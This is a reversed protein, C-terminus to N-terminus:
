KTTITPVVSLGARLMDMDPQNPDFTIKVPVRQVVKTFNGTANDPPLLAFTAGTGASISDVRGKYPHKPLLDVEIEVPQGVRVNKMQTEKFNAVVWLDNNPILAMIAQGVAVQQGIQGTRRSVVGDVAAYIKTHQLNIKATDLSAQAPAIQARANQQSAQQVAVQQPATRAQNLQGLAQQRKAQAATVNEHASALQARSQGINERAANAANLAAAVQSRASAIQADAVRVADEAAAVDTQRQQVTEQAASVNQQAQSASQRAAELQAQATSAAATVVDLQQASIADQRYLEQYRQVDRQTKDANAQAAAVNAQATRVAAQAARVAAQANALQARAGGVAQVARSRSAIAAPVGTQATKVNAQSVQATAEANAVGARYRAVDAQATGIGSAAQTVGAQAQEIQAQTTAQTLQVNSVTGSATVRAAQLQAEAREMDAQYTAPDLEALLQGKKVRQNDNVYLKLITGSVQPTVQVVDSTIQADDTNVHAGAWRLYNMLWIGGGVLAILGVTILVPKLWPRKNQGKNDAANDAEGGSNDPKRAEDSSAVKDNEQDDSTNGKSNAPYSDDSDDNRAQPEKHANGDSRPTAPPAVVTAGAERSEARPTHDHGSPSAVKADM